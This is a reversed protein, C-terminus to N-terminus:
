KKGGAYTTETGYQPQRIEPNRQGARYALNLMQVTEPGCSELQGVHIVDIFPGTIHYCFPGYTAPSPRGTYPEDRDIWPPTKLIQGSGFVAPGGVSSARSGLARRLYRLLTKM